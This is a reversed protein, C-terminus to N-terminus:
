SKICLTAEDDSICVKLDSIFHGYNYKTNDM